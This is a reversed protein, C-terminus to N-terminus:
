SKLHASGSTSRDSTGRATVAVMQAAGEGEGRGIASVSRIVSSRPELMAQAGPALMLATRNIDGARAIQTLSTGDSGVLYLIIANSRTLAYIVSRTPDLTLGIIPDPNPDSFDTTQADCFQRRSMPRHEGETKSKLFEPVLSGILPLGSGAGTWNILACRKTFWGEDARYQMEYLCGDSGVMFTRGDPMSVVDTMAIGDTPISLDTAYLTIDNPAVSLGLLILTSPTCLVLLHSITNIFVGPKAKVLGVSLIVESQEDYRSFDASEKYNWLLLKNDITMWARDIDPFLGMKM